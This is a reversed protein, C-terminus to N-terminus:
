RLNFVFFLCIEEFDEPTSHSKQLFNLDNKEFIINVLEAEQQLRLWPTTSVYFLLNDDSVSRVLQRM